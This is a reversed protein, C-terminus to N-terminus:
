GSRAPTISVRDARASVTMRRDGIGVPLAQVDSVHDLPRLVEDSIAGANRFGILALREATLTDYRLHQFAATAELSCEEDVSGAKALRQVPRSYQLRLREVQETRM